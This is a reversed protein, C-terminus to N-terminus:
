MELNYSLIATGGTDNGTLSAWNVQIRTDDTALGEYPDAMVSPLVQILAGETNEDSYEEAWDISNRSLVKAIVLDNYVLNYPEVRLVSQM